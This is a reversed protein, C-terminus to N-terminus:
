PFMGGSAAPGGDDVVEWDSPDYGEPLGGGSPYKSVMQGGGYEGPVWQMQPRYYNQVWDQYSVNEMGPQSRAWEYERQAPSPAPNATRYDILTKQDALAQERAEQAAQQKAILEALRQRGETELEQQKAMAPAYTAQGGGATQLADGILGLIEWGRGGRAFASPKPAQVQPIQQQLPQQAQMNLIGALGQDPNATGGGYGSIIGPMIDSLAM